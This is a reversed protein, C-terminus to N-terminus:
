WALDFSFRTLVGSTVKKLYDNHINSLIYFKSVKSTVNKLHGDHIKRLLNTKIIELYLKSNTKLVKSM